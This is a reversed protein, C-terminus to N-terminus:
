KEVVDTKLETTEAKDETTDESDEKEFNLLDHEQLFNYWSFVKKMDSVYVRDHDYDPVVKEMFQKLLDPDAKKPEFEVQGDHCEEKINKFVDILAVEETETFIAIDELASIKATAHAPFRKGSNLDEVIIANKAQAVHKYLGPRGGIALIGKLSM